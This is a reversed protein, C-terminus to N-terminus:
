QRKYPAILNFSPYWVGRFNPPGLHSRVHSLDLADINVDEIVGEVEELCQCSSYIERLFHWAEEQSFATVGFGTYPGTFFWYRKLLPNKLM